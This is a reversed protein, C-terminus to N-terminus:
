ALGYPEVWDITWVRNTHFWHTQQKSHDIHALLSFSSFAIAKPRSVFEFKCLWLARLSYLFGIQFPANGSLYNNGASLVLSIAHSVYKCYFFLM